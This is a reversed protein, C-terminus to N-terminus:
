YRMYVFSQWGSVGFAVTLYVFFIALVATALKVRTTVTAIEPNSYAIGIRSMQGEFLLVVIFGLLSIALDFDSIILPRVEAAAPQGLFLSREVAIVLDGWTKPSLFVTSYAMILICILRNLFAPLNPRIGRERLAVAIWFPIVWYISWAVMQWKLGHWLGVLLLVTSSALVVSRTRLAIPTYVHDRLWSVLSIHWRNWIDQISEALYPRDFNEMIEIGYLRSLGRAIHIIGSFECYIQLLSLGFYAWLSMSSYFLFNQNPDVALGSLRDGIVIKKFLGFAILLIGSLIMESRFKRESKFAQRLNGWREIPGVPIVPFLTAFGFRQEFTPSTVLGRRTDLYLGLAMLSGYSLGLVSTEWLKQVVLPLLLISIMIWSPIRDAFYHQLIALALVVAVTVPWFIIGISLSGCLLVFNRWRPSVFWHILCTSLIVSGILIATV